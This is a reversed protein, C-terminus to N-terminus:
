YKNSKKLNGKASMIQLNRISNSGGKSLPKKHDIHWGHNGNRCNKFVLKNDCSIRAINPNYGKAKKCKKWLKDQTNKSITKRKTKQVM